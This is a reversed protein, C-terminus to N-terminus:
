TSMPMPEAVAPREEKCVGDHLKSHMIQEQEKNISNEQHMKMENLKIDDAGLEHGYYNDGDREHEHNGGGNSPAEEHEHNKTAGNSQSKEADLPGANIHHKSRHLICIM